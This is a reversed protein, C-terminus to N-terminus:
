TTGKDGMQTWKSAMRHYHFEPRMELLIVLERKTVGLQKAIWVCQPYRERLWQLSVLSTHCWKELQQLM